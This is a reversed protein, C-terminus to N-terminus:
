CYYEDRWNQTINVIYASAYSKPYYHKFRHQRIQDKFSPIEKKVKSPESQVICTPIKYYILISRRLFADLPNLLIPKLINANFNVGNIM